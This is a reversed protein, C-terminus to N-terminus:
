PRSEKEVRWWIKMGNHENSITFEGDEEVLHATLYEQLRRRQEATTLGYRLEYDSLANEMSSFITKNVSRISKVDPYIGMQYLLNFVIDVKPIPTHEIGRLLPWLVRAEQDYPQDGAHWYIVITGDTVAIMKEIAEHINLMGLSYSAFCLQYPPCLDTEIDVDDWKKHVVTVNGIDAAGINEQLVFVMGDAPEVCTIQAVHSAMPISLNGPGAGIDLIRDGPKTLSLLDQLRQQANFGTLSREWYKQAAEKSMWISSCGGGLGAAMNKKQQEIWIANWDFNAYSM